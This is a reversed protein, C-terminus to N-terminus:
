VHREGGHVKELGQELHAPKSGDRLDATRGQFAFSASSSIPESVM